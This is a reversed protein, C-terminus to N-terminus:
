SALIGCVHLFHLLLHLHSFNEGAKKLLGRPDLPAFGRTNKLVCSHGAFGTNAYAFRLCAVRNFSKSCSCDITKSQSTRFTLKLAERLASAAKCRLAFSFHLKADNKRTASRLARFRGPALRAPVSRNIRLSACSPSFFSDPPCNKRPSVRAPPRGPLAGTPQRMAARFLTIPFVGCPNDGYCAAWVFDGRRPPPPTM